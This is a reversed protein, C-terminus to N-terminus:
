MGVSRKEDRLESAALEGAPDRQHAVRMRCARVHGVEPHHDRGIVAPAPDARGEHFRGLAPSAAGPDPLELQVHERVVLGRDLEVLLEAVLALPQAHAVVEAVLAAVRVDQQHRLLQLTLAIAFGSKRGSTSVSVGYWGPFGTSSTWRSSPSSRTTLSADLSPGNPGNSAAQSASARAVRSRLRYGSPPAYSSWRASASRCPTSGLQIATPAPASPQMSMILWATSSGPSSTT